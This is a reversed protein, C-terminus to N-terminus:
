RLRAYRATTAARRRRSRRRHTVSAPQMVALTSAVRTLRANSAACKAICRRNRRLAETRFCVRRRRDRREGRSPVAHIFFHGGPSPACVPRHKDRDTTRVRDCSSVRPRVRPTWHSHIPTRMRYRLPLGMTDAPAPLPTPVPAPRAIEDWLIVSSAHPEQHPPRRWARSLRRASSHMRRRLRVPRRLQMVSGGNNRLWPAFSM